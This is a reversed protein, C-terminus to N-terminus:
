LDRALSRGLTHPCCTLGQRGAAGVHAHEALVLLPQTRQLMVSRFYEAHHYNRHFCSTGLLSKRLDAPAGCMWVVRSGSTKLDYLGFQSSGNWMVDTIQNTCLRDGRWVATRPELEASSPFGWLPSARGLVTPGVFPKGAVSRSTISHGDPSGIPVVRLYRLPEGSSTFRQREGQFNHM